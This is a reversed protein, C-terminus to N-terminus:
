HSVLRYNLGMPTFADLSVRVFPISLYIAASEEWHWMPHVKAYGCSSMTNLIFSLTSLLSSISGEQAGNLLLDFVVLIQM